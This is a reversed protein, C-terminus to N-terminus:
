ASKVARGGDRARDGVAGGGDEDTCTAELIKQNDGPEDGESISTIEQEPGAASPNQCEDCNSDNAHGRQHTCGAPNEHPIGANHKDNSSPKEPTCGPVLAFDEAYDAGNLSDSESNAQASDDKHGKIRPFEAGPHSEVRLREERVTGRAFENM